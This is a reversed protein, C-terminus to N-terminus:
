YPPDLYFLTGPTDYRGIFEAWSEIVVGALREHIDDLLPGLKTV